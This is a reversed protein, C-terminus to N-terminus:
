NRWPLGTDPTYPDATPHSPRAQTSEVSMGAGFPSRGDQSRVSYLAAAMRVGIDMTNDMLAAGLADLADMHGPLEYSGNETAAVVRRGLADIVSQRLESDVLGGQLVAVQIGPHNM